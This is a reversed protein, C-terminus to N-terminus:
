FIFIQNKLKQSYYFSFCIFTNIYFETELTVYRSKQTAHGDGVLSRSSNKENLICQLMESSSSM